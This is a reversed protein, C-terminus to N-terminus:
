RYLPLFLTNVVSKSAVEVRTAEFSNIETLMGAAYRFDTVNAARCTVSNETNGTARYGSENQHPRRIAPRRPASCSNHPSSLVRADYQQQGLRYTAMNEGCLL